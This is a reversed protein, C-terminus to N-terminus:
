VYAQKQFGYIVETKDLRSVKELSVGPPRIYRVSPETRREPKLIFVRDGALRLGKSVNSDPDNFDGFTLARGLCARVCAPELGANLRQVCLTCAEVVTKKDNFQLAGYPCAPICAPGKPEDKCGDCKSKDILVLGDERKYIAGDVPCAELCPPNECHMCHIYLYQGSLDPYIGDLIRLVQNWALGRTGPKDDINPPLGNEQKCAVVCVGCGWCSGIDVLIGYRKSM